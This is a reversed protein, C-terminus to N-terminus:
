NKKKRIFYYILGPENINNAYVDWGDIALKNISEIVPTFNHTNDDISVENKTFKGDINIIVDAKSGNKPRYTVIGYEYKDQAKVVLSLIMLFASAILLKVTKM